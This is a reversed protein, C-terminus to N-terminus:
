FVGKKVQCIGVATATSDFFLGYQRALGRLYAITDIDMKKGRFHIEYGEVFTNVTISPAIMFHVGELTTCNNVIEGFLDKAELLKM